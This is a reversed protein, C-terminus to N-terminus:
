SARRVRQCGREADAALPSFSLDMDDAAAFPETRGMVEALSDRLRVCRARDKVMEIGIDTDNAHAENGGTTEVGTEADEGEEEGNEKKSGAIAHQGRQKQQEQQEQEREMQEEEQAAAVDVAAAVAGRLWAVKPWSEDNMSSNSMCHTDGDTLHVRHPAGEAPLPLGGLSPQPRNSLFWLGPNDKSSDYAKGGGTHAGGEPDKSNQLSGGTNDGDGGSKGEAAEAAEDAEAAEAFLRCYVVNFGAYSQELCHTGSRDAM